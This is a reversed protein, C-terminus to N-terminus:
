KKNKPAVAEKAKKKVADIPVVSNTQTTPTSLNLLSPSKSHHAVMYSMLLCSAFFLAALVATVKALFSTSGASGFMTQSSGAGFGAGMDAGKGHQLLVLAIIGVSVLIHLLMLLQQM